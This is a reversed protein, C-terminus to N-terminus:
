KDTKQACKVTKLRCTLNEAKKEEEEEEVVKTHLTHTKIAQSQDICM